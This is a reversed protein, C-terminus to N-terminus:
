LISIDIEELGKDSLRYVKDCVERLFQRDHSVCILGSPYNSFLQRLHPQSGASFNRSPEDLLLFNAKDLVMKLLLLKAKQGGSLECIKHHVEQRTLPLRALYTLALEEKERGGDGILFDLITKSDDLSDEYRQPMYGLLVDQREKLQEYVLKLLTSKGVGNAGVIGIKEQALLNLSVHSILCKGAVELPWSELRLLPTTMKLPSIDSFFLAIHEESFPIETLNDKVIEYRKERSQVSKMKKAVLRGATADHTNLLTHRVQSKQRLHKAMVKEFEKRDNRAQKFQKEYANHQNQRYQQYDNDAVITKAITKKKVSTLHVIKTATRTLLAEDHSVFMIAKDSAAIYRELWLVTELDLDNSPEDLFLIEFPCALEKILQIKLQEGGSLSFLEQQSAFRESDFQLEEAYQYLLRYDIAADVDGFFYDNLTQKEMHRPLSQPIYAFSHYQRCISGSLSLYDFAEELGLLVKLLSSKGNGEEGIIAVKDGQNVNLVLDHVLPRFDGQHELSLHHITLLM